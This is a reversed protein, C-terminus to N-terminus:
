MSDTDVNFGLGSCVPARFIHHELHTDDAPDLRKRDRASPDADPNFRKNRMLRINRMLGPLQGRWWIACPVIRGWVMFINKCTISLNLTTLYSQLATLYSNLASM